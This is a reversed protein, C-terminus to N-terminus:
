QETKREDCRDIRERDDSRNFKVKMKHLTRYFLNRVNVTTMGLRRAIEDFSLDRELRLRFISGVDESISEAYRLMRDVDIAADRSAYYDTLRAPPLLSEETLEVQGKETTICIALHRNAENRGIRLLWRDSKAWDRVTDVSALANIWTNSCVGEAHARPQKCNKARLYKVITNNLKERYKKVLEIADRQTPEDGTKNASLLEGHSPVPKDDIM